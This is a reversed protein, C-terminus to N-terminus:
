PLGRLRRYKALRAAFVGQWTASNDAGGATGNGSAKTYSYNNFRESSFPSLAPSDIGAYKENWAEIEAALDVVTAPVAMAWIDGVFEEDTLDVAPYKHVGDNFDSNVIRFYQGDQLYGSLDISGGTITFKGHKKSRWFYNNLEACLETLTKEM